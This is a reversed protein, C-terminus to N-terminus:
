FFTRIENASFIAMPYSLSTTLWIPFFWIAPLIVRPLYGPASLRPHIVPLPYGLTSSRPVSLIELEIWAVLMPTDYTLVKQLTWRHFHSRWHSNIRVKKLLYPLFSNLYVPYGTLGGELLRNKHNSKYWSCNNRQRMFHIQPIIILISSYLFYTSSFNLQEM